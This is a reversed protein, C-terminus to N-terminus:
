RAAGELTLLKQKTELGASFGGLSGDSAVVRHCPIVLPLPNRGCAQGVARAAQPRRLAKALRGYSRVEGYPIRAIQRWVHASFGKEPIVVEVDPHEGGGLYARVARAADQTVANPGKLSAGPFRKLLEARFAEDDDDLRIGVVGHATAALRISSLLPVRVKQVHLHM